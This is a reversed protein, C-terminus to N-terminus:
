VSGEEETEEESGGDGGDDAGSEGGNDADGDGPEETGVDDPETPETTTPMAMMLGSAPEAATPEQSAKYEVTASVAGASSSVVTTGDVTRLAQPAISETTPTALPYWIIVPTGAAYQAALWAKIKEGTNLTQDTPTFYLYQEGGFWGCWVSGLTREPYRGEVWVFHTSVAQNRAATPMQPDDVRIRGYYTAASVLGVSEEGTLVKMRVRRTVTGAVVDVEDRYDGVAFLDPVTATQPATYPQYADLAGNVCFYNTTEWDPDDAVRISFRVYRADAPATAVMDNNALATGAVGSIYTEDDADSYWALGATSASYSQIGFYYAVGGTIPIFDTHLFNENSVLKGTSRNIYSNSSRDIAAANLLNAGGVTLTETDGVVRPVLHSTDYGLSVPTGDGTPAIFNGNVREYYGIVGGDSECPIWELRTSVLISGVIDGDYSPSSSNPLMGIYVNAPTTFEDPDVSADVMFGSTGGAGFTITRQETGGYVPRKLQNGFRFYSGSSSSRIIYFSFNARSAGGNYSGFVNTGSSSPNALTMTVDDDSTLAEGTEYHFNGDFSIGTLRQYNAPLEDDVMQVLGGNISPYVPADPTPAPTQTMAGTRVLSLINAALSHPLTLPLTGTLTYYAGSAGGHKKRGMLHSLLDGGHYKGDKVTLCYELMDFTM